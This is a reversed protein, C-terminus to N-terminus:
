EWGGSPLGFKGRFNTRNRNSLDACCFVLACLFCESAPPSSPPPTALCASPQGFHSAPRTQPMAKLTSQMCSGAFNHNQEHNGKVVGYVFPCGGLFVVAGSMFCGCFDVQHFGPSPWPARGGRQLALREGIAQVLDEM